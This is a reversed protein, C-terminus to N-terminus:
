NKRKRESEPSAGGGGLPPPGGGGGGTPPPGGGGGIPPPGGGGGMPPPGGGGGEPFPGAGGLFLLIRGEKNSSMESNRSVLANNASMLLPLFMPFSRFTSVWSRDATSERRWKEVEM